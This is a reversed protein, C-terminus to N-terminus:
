THRIGIRHEDFAAWDTLLRFRAHDALTEPDVDPQDAGAGRVVRFEGDSVLTALGQRVAEAELQTARALREVSTSVEDPRRLERRLYRILEQAYPEVRERWQGADLEDAFDRPLPLAEGALPLPHPSRWREGTATVTHEFVALDAMLGALDRTTAPLPRGATAMTTEFRRRAREDREQQEANDADEPLTWCVPDDLGGQLMDWAGDFQELLLEDLDGDMDHVTATAVLIHLPFGQRPLLHHWGSTWWDNAIANDKDM